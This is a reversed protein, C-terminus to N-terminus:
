ARSRTSTHASSWVKVKGGIVGASPSFSSITPPRIVVLDLASTGTGKRSKVTVPGSEARRPVTLEITQDDLVSFQATVGNVKVSTAGTLDHGHLVVDDGTFAEWPDFSDIGPLIHFTGRSVGSGLSNFVQFRGDVAGEPIQVRISAPSGLYWFGPAISGFAWGDITDLHTGDITVISNVAGAAPSFSTITPRGSDSAAAPGAVAASALLAAAALVAPRLTM